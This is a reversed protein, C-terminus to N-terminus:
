PRCPTDLLWSRLAATRENQLDAVIKQHTAKAAALTTREENSMEQPRIESKELLAVLASDPPMALQEVVKKRITTISTAVTLRGRLSGNHYGACGLKEGLAPGFDDPEIKGDWNPM